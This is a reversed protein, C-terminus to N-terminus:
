TRDTEAAVGDAALGDPAPLWGEYLEEVPMRVNVGAVAFDGDSRGEVHWEDLGLRTWVDM